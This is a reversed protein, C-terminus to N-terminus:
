NNPKVVATANHRKEKMGPLETWETSGMTFTEVSNFFGEEKNYDGLVVIVDHMIVACPGCRKHRLSPLRESQGTETDHMIVHNLVNDNKDKGGLVIINGWTVTSMLCVPKPLPPCSKIENKIFDYMIVSDIADKSYTTTTGGIVYLHGDLVVASHNRRPQPM